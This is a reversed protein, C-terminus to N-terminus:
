LRGNKKPPMEGRSVKAFLLSKDSKGPVVAPGTDGGQLMGERTHLDLGGKTKTGSHCELCRDHLLPFIDRDFDPTPTAPAQALAALPLGLPVIAVLEVLGRKSTRLHDRM